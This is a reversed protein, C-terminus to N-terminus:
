NILFNKKLEILYVQSHFCFSELQGFFGLWWEILPNLKALNRSFFRGANKQYFTVMSDQVNVFLLYSLFSQRFNRIWHIQFKSGSFFGDPDLNMKEESTECLKNHSSTGLSSSYYSLSTLWSNTSRDFNDITLIKIRVISFQVPLFTLFIKIFDFSVLWITNLQKTETEFGLPKDSNWYKCLFRVSNGGLYYHLHNVCNASQSCHTLDISILKTVSLQIITEVISKRFGFRSGLCVLASKLTCKISSQTLNLKIILYIANFNYDLQDSNLTTM